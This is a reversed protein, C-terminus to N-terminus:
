LFHFSVLCCGPVAPGPLMSPQQKTEKWKRHAMRHGCATCVERRDEGNPKVNLVTIRFKALQPGHFTTLLSNEEGYWAAVKEGCCAVCVHVHTSASVREKRGKLAAWMCPCQGCSIPKGRFNRGTGKCGEQSYGRAFPKKQPHVGRHQRKQIKTLDGLGWSEKGRRAQGERDM